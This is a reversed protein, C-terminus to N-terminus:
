DYHRGVFRAIGICATELARHRFGNSRGFFSADRSDCYLVGVMVRDLEDLIPVAVWAKRDFTLESASEETYGWERILFEIREEYEGDHSAKILRQQRFCLGTVGCQIPFVRGASGDQTDGVYETIQVCHNKERRHICIRLGHDREVDAGVLISHLSEMVAMLPAVSKKEERLLHTVIHKSIGAILVLTTAGVGIRASVLDGNNAFRWSATYGTVAVAAAIFADYPLPSLFFGWTRSEYKPIGM